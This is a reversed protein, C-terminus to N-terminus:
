LRAAPKMALLAALDERRIIREPLLEDLKTSGVIANPQPRIRGLGIAKAHRRRQFWRPRALSHRNASLSMM